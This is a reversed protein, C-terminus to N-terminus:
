VREHDVMIYNFQNSTMKKIEDLYNSNMIYIDTCKDIQKLVEEPSYVRLGTTPLYKGQKAPNIDIVFDVAVGARQMFICFIVGKSAGGWVVVKNSPECQINSASFEVSSIFDKPFEFCCRDDFVPSQLTKLDAVVYLYQGGFIHGSEYVKGFMRDFDSIRFYNVHEYFVDFWTCHKCIWDFCPVEIYVKGGGENSEKINDLFEIPDKVHELVHRLIVGDAHLALEPTFYHNIIRPNVGEYTPYFGTIEFGIDRLLELFFGKGCGVEILTFGTFNKIIIKSVDVLHSKFLLSIAQENQYSEDYQMVQPNFFKNFVLGTKLDQVLVVDDKICKQAERETLYMRNQFVPLQEVKYVERFYKSM